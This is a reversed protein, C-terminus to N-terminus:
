IQQMTLSFNKKLWDHPTKERVSVELYRRIKRFNTWATMGVISYSQVLCKVMYSQWHSCAETYVSQMSCISRQKQRHGYEMQESQTCCSPVTQSKPFVTQKHPIQLNMCTCSCRHINGDLDRQEGSVCMVQVIRRYKYQQVELCAKMRFTLRSRLHHAETINFSVGNWMIKSRSMPFDIIVGTVITDNLTRSQILRLYLCQFCM